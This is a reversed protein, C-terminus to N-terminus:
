FVKHVSHWDKLMNKHKFKYDYTEEENQGM